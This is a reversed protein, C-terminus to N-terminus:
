CSFRLSFTALFCCSRLSFAAPLCRFTALVCRSRVPFAGPVCRSRMTLPTTAVSKHLCIHISSIAFRGWWSSLVNGHAINQTCHLVHLTCHAIHLAFRAIHLTFRAIRLTCHATRSMSSVSKSWSRLTSWIIRSAKPTTGGEKTSSSNDL